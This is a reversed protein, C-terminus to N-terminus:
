FHFNLHDTDREPSPSFISSTKIQQPQKPPTTLKAPENSRGSNENFWFDNPQQQKPQGSKPDNYPPAPQSNNRSSNSSSSSSNHTPQNFPPPKQTTSSHQQQQWAKVKNQSSPQQQQATVSTSSSSTTGRNYDVNNSAVGSTSTPHKPIRQYPFNNNDTGSSGTTKSNVPVPHIQQQQQSASTSSPRQVTPYLGRLKAPSRVVPYPVSEQHMQRQQSRVNEETLSGITPKNSSPYQGSVATSPRGDTRQRQQPNINSTTTSSATTSPAQTPVLNKYGSNTLLSSAGAQQPLQQSTKAANM